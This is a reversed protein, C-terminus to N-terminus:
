AKKLIMMTQDMLRITNVIYQRMLSFLNREYNSWEIEIIEQTVVPSYNLTFIRLFLINIEQLSLWSHKLM